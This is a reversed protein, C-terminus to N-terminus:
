LFSHINCHESKDGFKVWETTYTKENFTNGRMRSKQLSPSFVGKNDKKKEFSIVPLYPQTNNKNLKHMEEKQMKM